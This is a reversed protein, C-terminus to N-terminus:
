HNSFVYIVTTPVVDKVDKNQAKYYKELAVYLLDKSCLPELELPM